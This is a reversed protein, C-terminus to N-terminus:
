KKNMFYIKLLKKIRTIISNSNQKIILYFKLIGSLLYNIFDVYWPMNSIPMLQEDLFSENITVVDVQMHEKLRLLCDVVINKM